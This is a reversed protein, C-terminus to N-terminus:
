NGVVPGSGTCKPMWGSVTEADPRVWEPFEAMADDLEALVEDIVEASEQAVVCTYDGFTKGPNETLWQEYDREEFYAAVALGVAPIAVIYRRLRAKAKTKAVAKAVERRSQVSAETKTRAVAKMIESRQRVATAAASATMVAVTSSMQLAWLTSSVAAGLLLIVLSAVFITSRALRMVWKMDQSGKHDM